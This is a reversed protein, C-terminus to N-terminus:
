SSNINIILTNLTKYEDTVSLFRGKASHRYHKSAIDVGRLKASIVCTGQRFPFKNKLCPVDSWLILYQKVNITLVLYYKMNAM